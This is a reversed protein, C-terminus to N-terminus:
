RWVSIRNKQWSDAMFESATAEQKININNIKISGKGVGASVSADSGNRNVAESTLEFNNGTAELRQIGTVYHDNVHWIPKYYDGSFLYGKASLTVSDRKSNSRTETVSLPGKGKFECNGALDEGNLSFHGSIDVGKNADVHNSYSERGNNVGFSIGDVGSVIPMPLIALLMISIKM